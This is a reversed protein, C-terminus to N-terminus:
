ERPRYGGFRKVISATSLDIQTIGGDKSGTYSYRGQADVAVSLVKDNEPFEAAPELSPTNYFLTAPPWGLGILLTRGDPTVVTEYVEGTMTNPVAVDNLVEFSDSDLSLLHVDLMADAVVYYLNGDPAYAPVGIRKLAEGELLTEGTALDWLIPKGSPLFAETGDELTRYFIIITLATEGDPHFATEGTLDLVEYLTEATSRDWVVLGRKCMGLIASDNMVYGVTYFVDSEAATYRHVTEGTALNWEWVVGDNGGGIVCEGTTDVDVDRIRGESEAITLVREGTETNWVMVTGDASGSVLLSGDPNLDLGYVTDQHSPEPNGLQATLPQVFILAACVILAFRM